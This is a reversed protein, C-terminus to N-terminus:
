NAKYFFIGSPEMKDNFWHQWSERVWLLDGPQWRSDPLLYGAAPGDTGIKKYGKKQWKEMEKGYADLDIPM